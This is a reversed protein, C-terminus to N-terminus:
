GATLWREYRLSSGSSTSPRGDEGRGVAGDANGDDDKGASGFDRPGSHQPKWAANRTNPIISAGASGSSWGRVRSVVRPGAPGSGACGTSAAPEKDCSSSWDHAPEDARALPCLGTHAESGQLPGFTFGLSSHYNNDAHLHRCGSGTDVDGALFFLKDPGAPERM